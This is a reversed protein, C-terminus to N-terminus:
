VSRNQKQAESTRWLVWGVKKIVWELCRLSSSAFFGETICYARLDGGVGFFERERLVDRVDTRKTLFNYEQYIVQGSNVYSFLKVSCTGIYM